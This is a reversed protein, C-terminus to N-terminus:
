KDKGKKEARYGLRSDYNLIYKDSIEAYGIGQLENSDEVLAARFPSEEDEDGLYIYDELWKLQIKTSQPALYEPVMVTNDLLKVTVRRREARDFHKPLVLRSDDLFQIQTENALGIKKILLVQVSETEAYRTSAKSEPLTIGGRSIGTLALSSLTERKQETERKYLALNGQELRDEYTEELMSRIDDPLMLSSINQWVSLTRCLIYPSYVRASKGFLTKDQIVDTLDPAM